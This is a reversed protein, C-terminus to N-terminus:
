ILASTGDPMSMNPLKKWKIEVIKGTNKLVKYAKCLKELEAYDDMYWNGGKPIDIEGIYLEIKRNYNSILWSVFEYNINPSIANPCLIEDMYIRLLRDLIHRQCGYYEINEQFVNDNLM